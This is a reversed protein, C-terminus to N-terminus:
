MYGTVLYGSGRLLSDRFFCAIVGGPFHVFTSGAFRGNYFSIEDFGVM